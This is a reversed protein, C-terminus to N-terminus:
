AVLARQTDVQQVAISDQSLLTTFRELQTKDNTLQAEDQAKKAVAQHLVAQLPQPDIRALVDGALVAQGEPFPPDILLGSVQPTITAM